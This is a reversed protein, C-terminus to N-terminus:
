REIVETLLEVLKNSAFTDPSKKNKVRSIIKNWNKVTKNIEFLLTEATADEQKLVEALGYKKAFVANKNQEDLYTFPIPIFISPRKSSIIESVINAGSRSIVVDSKRLLKFMESPDVIGYVSYRKRQSADMSKRIKVFKEKQFEGTQHIVYYKKLLRTLIKESLDNITVSGRSGGTILLTAPKELNLKPSIASVEDTIPNGTVVTKDPPLFELSEIRAIAIKRAFRAAHQNARGIATTQEHLVIPIRLFWGIVVVPYAAYGGFSLIIRPKITLLLYFAHIFGIPIKFLSPITWLSFKRQIRGAVISYTDVGLKPFLKYEFTRVSKGEFAYKPGIWSIKWKVKESKKLAQITAYATTAGHGGTLVIKQPTLNSRKQAM